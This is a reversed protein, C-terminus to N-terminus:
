VRTSATEVALPSVAVASRRKSSATRPYDRALVLPASRQAPLASRLAFLLAIRALLLASRPLGARICRAEFAPPLNTWPSSSRLYSLYSLPNRWGRGLADEEDLTDEEEPLLVVKVYQDTRLYM